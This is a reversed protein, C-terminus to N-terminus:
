VIGGMSYGPLRQKLAALKPQKENPWHVANVPSIRVQTNIGTRM